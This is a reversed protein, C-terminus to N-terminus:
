DTNRAFFNATCRHDTGKAIQSKNSAYLEFFKRRSHAMCGGKTVGLTFSQQCCSFDDGFLAGKWERLFTHVEGAEISM